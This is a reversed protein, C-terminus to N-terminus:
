LSARLMAKDCTIKVSAPDLGDASADVLLEGPERTSQVIAVCLGNFASRANAKDPEHSSPDGNGVGLIHGNGKLAFRVMNSAVPVVRGERDVIEAVLVSVDEGDAAIRTRDPRLLVRAPAGTTERKAVLIQRGGRYGRAELVGPAYRVKWEVHTNPAVEKRGLPQGNLFLNVYDLNTHCWVEIERGEKGGWNWHPFLHLVPKAGWWAQYYYFNDKPFGCM